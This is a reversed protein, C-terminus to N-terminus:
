IHIYRKEKLSRDLSEKLIAQLLRKIQSRARCCSYLYTKKQLLGLVLAMIDNLVLCDPELSRDKRSFFVSNSLITSM